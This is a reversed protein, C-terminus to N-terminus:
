RFNSSDDEKKTIKIVQDEELYLMKLLEEKHKECLKNGMLLKFGYIARKASTIAEKSPAKGTVADKYGKQSARELYSELESILELDAPIGKPDSHFDTVGAKEYNMDHSRALADVEDIPKESYTFKNNPSGTVKSHLGEQVMIYGM